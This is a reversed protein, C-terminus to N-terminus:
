AAEKQQPIIHMDDAYPCVLAGSENREILGLELLTQVDEHVRKVDRGVQRSLERVGMAGGQQM